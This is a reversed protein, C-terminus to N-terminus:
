RPKCQLAPRVSFVRLEKFATELQLILSSISLDAYMDLRSLGERM